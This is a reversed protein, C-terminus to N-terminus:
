MRRRDHPFTFTVRTGHSEESSIGLGLGLRECMLAILYLGMGTATGSERGNSGTFGRDFVRPLDAASIGCGDDAVEVVTRGHPTNPAEERATFTIAHAGYQAANALVQGFMFVLWPEDSLVDMEDPIQISPIAQKEILFRAQRKCAERAAAAVSVRRIAYDKQLATSRAYYLAQEVQNDIREVERALADASEDSMRDLILKAAAIPTKAEHIWLEVYERYGEADAQAETLEASAQASISEALDAAIRGELFSANPLLAGRESATHEGAMLDDIGHWFSVRRAYGIALSLALCLLVFGAVTIAAQIGVGLAMCMWFVGLICVIGIVLAIGRDRLYAGLTFAPSTDAPHDKSM